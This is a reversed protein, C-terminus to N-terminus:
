PLPIASAARPPYKPRGSIRASGGNTPTRINGNASTSRSQLARCAPDRRPQQKRVVKQGSVKSTSPRLTALPRATTVMLFEERAPLVLQRPGKAIVRQTVANPPALKHLFIGNTYTSGSSPPQYYTNGLCSANAITPHDNSAFRGAAAEGWSVWKSGSYRLSASNAIRACSLRRATFKNETLRSAQLARWASSM